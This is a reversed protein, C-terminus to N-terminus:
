ATRMPRSHMACMPPCTTSRRMPPSASGWPASSSTRISGRSASSKRSGDACPGAPSRWRGSGTRPMAVGLAHFADHRSGAFIHPIGWEDRVIHADADLGAVAMTGDTQPLSAHLRNAIVLGAVVLLALLIGVAIGAYRLVRAIM